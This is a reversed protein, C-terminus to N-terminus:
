RVRAAIQKILSGKLRPAPRDPLTHNIYGWPSLLGIPILRIAVQHETILGTRVRNWTQFDQRIIYATSM